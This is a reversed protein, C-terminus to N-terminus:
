VLLLLQAPAPDATGSRILVTCQCATAALLPSPLQAAGTPGVCVAGVTDHVECEAGGRGGSDGSGGAAGAQMRRLKRPPPADAAEAGSAGDQGGRASSGACPADACVAAAAATAGLAPAAAAVALRQYRRWRRVAADTVQWQRLRACPSSALLCRRAKGLEVRKTWLQRAMACAGVKCFV